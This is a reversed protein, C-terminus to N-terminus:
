LAQKDLRTKLFNGSQSLFKELGQNYSFFLRIVLSDATAANRFIERLCPFIVLFSLKQNNIGPHFGIIPFVTSLNDLISTRPPREPSYFNYTVCLYPTVSSLLGTLSGWM